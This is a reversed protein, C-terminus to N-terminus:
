SAPLELLTHGLNAHTLDASAVQAGRLNASYLSAGRFSTFRADSSNLQAEMLDTGFFDSHRLDSENFVAKRARSVRFDTSQMNCGLFLGDRVDSKRFCCLSLNAELFSSVLMRIGKFSSEPLQSKGVFTSRDFVAEDWRSSRASLKVFLQRDFGAKAWSSNEAACEIFMCKVFKAGDFRADTLNCTNFVCNEFIAGSLDADSFSCNQAVLGSFSAQKMSASAFNAELLLRDSFRSRDLKANVANAKALNTRSFDCDSANANALVVATLAGGSFNSGQINASTLDSQEMLVGQLDLGQLDAGALNANAIDRRAFSTGAAVHDVILRGLRDRVSQAYNELPYVPEPIYTREHDGSLLFGRAEEDLEAFFIEETTEAADQGKKLIDAVSKVDPKPVPMKARAKLAEMVPPLEGGASSPLIDALLADIKQAGKQAAASMEKMGAAISAVDIPKAELFKPDSLADDPAVQEGGRPALPADSAQQSFEKLRQQMEYFPDAEPLALARAKALHFVDEGGASSGPLTKLIEDISDLAAQDVEPDMEALPQISTATRAEEDKLLKKGIKGFNSGLDDLRAAAEILQKANPDNTEIAKQIVATADKPVPIGKASLKAFETTRLADFQAHAAGMAALLDKVTKALDIKGAALDKPNPLPLRPAKPLTEKPLFMAPLKSDKIMKDAAFQFQKDFKAAISESYADSRLKLEEAEAQSMPPMLQTDNLTHLAGEAPDSRLRFVEAYYEAPRPADSLREAGVVLAVVNSVKDDDARIAARYYLGGFGGTGFIWVTELRLDLDTFREAKRDHIAVLRPRLGPLASNIVPDTGSMGVVTVPEDGTLSGSTRQDLPAVNFYANEFGPPMGPFTTTLWQARPDGLKSKRLPHEHGLPGFLVPEPRDAPQLILKDPNEINPLAAHGFHDLIYAPDHGRGDPNLPHTESGYAHAPTLPMAEFPEADRLVIRDTEKVWHRDGFVTARKEIPGVRVLLDQAKVSTGSPARAEGAILLEPCEKPFGMDLFGGDPFHGTSKEMYEAESLLSGPESLSFGFYVTAYLVHKDALPQVNQICSLRFPKYLDPM